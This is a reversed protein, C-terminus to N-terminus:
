PRWLAPFNAKLAALKPADWRRIYPHDPHKREFGQHYDEAPYFAGTEVRTAVPRAFAHSANLQAIYAAAARRQAADQPFIASRYSPGEDPTQRNVQTPDHSSFFVRLLQGYSVQRPDYVIRVSEAHGTRETGVREYQADARSGGAYGSTVSKVGKVHEFVGEMGWFCGGAFVATQLRATAPVDIKPPPAAAASAPASPSLLWAGAALAALGLGASTLYRM